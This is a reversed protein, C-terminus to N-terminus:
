NTFNQNNSQPVSGNLNTNINTNTANTNQVVNSSFDPSPAGVLASVVQSSVVTGATSAQSKAPDFTASTVYEVNSSGLASKQASTVGIVNMTSSIAAVELPNIMVVPKNNPVKPIPGDPYAIEPVASAAPVNHISTTASSMIDPLGSMGRTVSVSPGIEVTEQEGKANIIVIHSAAFQEEAIKAKKNRSVLQWLCICILIFCVISVAIYLTGSLTDRFFVIVTEM